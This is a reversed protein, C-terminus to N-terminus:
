TNRRYYLVKDAVLKVCVAFGVREFLWKRHGSVVDYYDALWGLRIIFFSLAARKGKKFLVVFM